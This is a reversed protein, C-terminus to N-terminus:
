FCILLLVLQSSTKQLLTNMVKLVFESVFRMDNPSYFIWTICSKVGRRMIHTKMQTLINETNEACRMM